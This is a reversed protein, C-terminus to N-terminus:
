KFEIYDKRGDESELNIRLLAGKEPKSKQGPIVEKNTFVHFATILFLKSKKRIFFCTGKGRYVYFSDTTGSNSNISDKLEYFFLPYSYKKLDYWQRLPVQSFSINWVNIMILFLLLHKKEM